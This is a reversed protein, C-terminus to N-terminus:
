IHKKNVQVKKSKLQGCGADIDIGRRVRVTAPIKYEKLIRVFQRADPLSSPVGDYGTTPNLPILNVHCELGRLLKGLRHAEESNDNQGSILAWEFTVRRNTKQVYERCADLLEAIPYKKNIPMLPGRVSDRSAHLSIALKVQLGENAFQRIKPAIGVTSLTIRRSGIGLREQIMHISQLVADYNHFPEGMGMLVINSLREGKEQLQHAYLHAQEYIEAAKLHRVFGMQGTACFVCKMACGAQSSICATRRGDQYPMLVSEILQGDQLKYLRKITGDASSQETDIDMNGIFFHEQLHAILKKPINKMSTFNQVGKEYLWNWIQKTRFKPFKQSILYQELEGLQLSFINRKNLVSITESM